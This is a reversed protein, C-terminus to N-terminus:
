HQATVYKIVRQEYGFTRIQTNTSQVETIVVHGMFCNTKFKIESIKNIITNTTYGKDM